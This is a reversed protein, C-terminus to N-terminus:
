APGRAIGQARRNRRRRLLTLGVLVGAGAAVLSLTSPEPEPTLLFAHAYGAADTGLGTILGSDNIGWACVLTWGSAPDIEANLDIMQGGPEYLFAHGDGAADIDSFGVVDGRSNIGYGNGDPGGLSGLDQMHDTYIFPDWNNNVAGNVQSSGVVEDANDMALVLTQAGGLTGIDVLPGGGRSIYGRFSVGDTTTDGAYDGSDNIAIVGQGGANRMVGNSWIFGTYGGGALSSVGAIQGNNNVALAESTPGGLTGLDQLPGSGTSLFAHSAGNPTFEAYGVVWSNNNIAYAASETGFGGFTGLDQLPGSGGWFFGHSYRYVPGSDAYGVVQGADNIARAVSTPGALSGLDTVAYPYPTAGPAGSAVASLLLGLATVHLYWPM